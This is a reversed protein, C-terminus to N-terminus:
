TNPGEFTKLLEYKAGPKHTFVRVNGNANAVFLDGVLDVAAAIPRDTAAEIIVELPAAQGSAGNAYVAIAHDAPATVFLWQNAPGGNDGGRSCGAGVLALTLWLAPSLSRRMYAALM